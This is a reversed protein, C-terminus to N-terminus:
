SCAQTGPKDAQTLSQTPAPGGVYESETRPGCMPVLFHLSVAQLTFLLAIAIWSVARLSRPARHARAMHFGAVIAAAIWMVSMIWDSVSYRLTGPYAAGFLSMLHWAFFPIGFILLLVLWWM